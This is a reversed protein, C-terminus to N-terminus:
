RSTVGVKSPWRWAYGTMEGPPGAAARAREALVQLVAHPKAAGTGASM